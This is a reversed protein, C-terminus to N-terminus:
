SLSIELFSFNNYNVTFAFNLRLGIWLSM